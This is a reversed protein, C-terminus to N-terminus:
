KGKYRSELFTDEVKLSILRRYVIYDIFSAQQTLKHWSKSYSVVKNKIIRISNYIAIHVAQCIIVFSRILLALFDTKEGADLSGKMRLKEVM